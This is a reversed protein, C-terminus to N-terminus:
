KRRLRGFLCGIGTSILLWNAPEPVRYLKLSAPIGIGFERQFALFDLGDVDQDGDSDGQMQGAVNELGFGAKWIDYDGADVQANFDFDADLPNYLFLGSDGDTFTAQFLLHGLDNLGSLQGANGATGAFFDVSAITHGALVDGERAVLQSVGNPDVFWLGSDSSSDVGGVGIELTAAVALQGSENLSYDSFEFFNTGPLEPVGGSGTRLVLSGSGDLFWLGYNDSGTVGGSGVEIEARVLVQGADNMLLDEFVEFNAGVIEPVGGVGTRGLLSGMGGTYLWVGRDSSDLTARMVVQDLNNIVYKDIATFNVGGVDPVNGVGTRALLMGSLGAYQWLGLNNDPTVAGSNVSASFVTQNNSNIAPEGLISFLSSPIGPVVTSVGERAVLMGTGSSDSWLGKDNIDSVDMEVVMTGNYALRGDSSTQISPTLFSYSAGAVGVVDGSGTRAALTGGGGSYRWFGEQSDSTVGGIGTQLTARLLVDGSSDIAIDLFSEFNAGVVAPVGVSGERALLSSSSGDFSWIGQDEVATVGGPGLELGASFVYKGDDTLPGAAFSAFVAGTVDSASDGSLVLATTGAGVHPSASLTGMILCASFVLYAHRNQL